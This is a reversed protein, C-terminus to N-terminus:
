SCCCPSTSSSMESRSGKLHRTHSSSILFSFVKMLLCTWDWPVVHFTYTSFYTFFLLKTWTLLFNSFSNSDVFFLLLLFLLDWFFFSLLFTFSSFSIEFSSAILSSSSFDLGTSIVLHLGWGWGPSLKGVAEDAEALGFISTVSLFKFLQTLHPTSKSDLNRNMRCQWSVCLIFNM